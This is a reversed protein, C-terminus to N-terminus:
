PCNNARHFKPPDDALLRHRCKTNSINRETFRGSKKNPHASSMIDSATQEYKQPLTAVTATLLLEFIDTPHGVSLKAFGSLDHHANLVDPKSSERNVVRIMAFDLKM